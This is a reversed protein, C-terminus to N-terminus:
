GGWFQVPSSSRIVSQFLRVFEGIQQGLTFEALIRRRGAQGMQRRLEQNQWLRGLADAIAQPNRTPTVFGEVGDTVAERMGGCDSTVVPLGCAMAELAANSIGESLSSLLFVDAQQLRDRVKAPPLQGTLSVRAALDLDEITYLLRQREPGEGIIEFHAPIGQDILARVAVLAVEYGKRWILSGTSIIHYIQDERQKARPPAFFQDDVAPRIVRAKHADLGLAIAEQLIAESVCHVGAAQDFTKQLGERISAREPNHPAINIQAGRCSIVAPMGLSFLPLHEIAASNWPFYVVDWRRGAFPLLRQWFALRQRGNTQRRAQAALLRLDKPSRLAAAVAQIALHFARELPPREWAPTFLWRINPQSRWVGDPRRATALTVQVGAQALGQLLRALFTEPPWAIGVVLLRLGTPDAM